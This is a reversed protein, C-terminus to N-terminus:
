FKFARVRYCPVQGVESAEITVLGHSELTKCASLERSGEFCILETGDCRVFESGHPYLQRLVGILTTPINM